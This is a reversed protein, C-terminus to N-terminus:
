EGTQRSVRGAVPMESSAASTAIGETEVLRYVGSHSASIYRGAADRRLASIKDGSSQSVSVIYKSAEIISMRLKRANICCKAIDRGAWGIDDPRPQAAEQNTKRLWIDWIAGREEPTPLDFFFIGLQYRGILEPPLVAMSNCTALFCTKGKGGSVATIVKLATSLNETSQGVLSGKMDSLNMQITPVRAMRGAVKAMMSKGGGAPGIFIMGTCDMDQMYSLKKGLLEQTVGSTDGAAGGFMKEIEDEFVIVRPTDPGSLYRDLFTIVNSSGGVDKVDENGRWVTLGKTQEIVKRKRDWCADIDLELKKSDTMKISMAVVQECCFSSLGTTADIARSLLFPDPAEMSADKMVGKIITALEGEDPLAEDLILVDQALEPPFRIDPAMMVLCRMNSKYADRLNWVGQVVGDNDLHRQMNAIFLISRRPFSEAKSLVDALNTLQAGAASVEKRKSKGNDAAANVQTKARADLLLDFLTDCGEENIFQLGRMLDWHLIPVAQKINNGAKTAAQILLVTAAPDPTTIAILPTAAMRAARFLRQLNTLAVPESKPPSQTETTQTTTAM